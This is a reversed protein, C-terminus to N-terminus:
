SRAGWIFRHSEDGKNFLLDIVSVQPEFKGYLQEYPPYYYTMYELTIENKLFLKEDVYAKTSPGTIYHDIGLRRCINIIRENKEGAEIEMHSSVVLKRELGLFGIIEKTLSIDLDSLYNWEKEFVRSLSPFYAGFHPAKRYNFLISDLIKKKWPTTQSIETNKIKQGLKGTTKVPVTIWSTGQATKIRNRNRWSGKDYQVDDLFVFVDSRYILDFFGRWPLFSPQLIVGKM